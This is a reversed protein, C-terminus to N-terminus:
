GIDVRAPLPREMVVEEGPGLPYSTREGTPVFGLRRYAAAARPNDEHVELRMRAAGQGAAHAALADVLEGLLGQGRAAPQLYVAAVWWVGDEGPFTVATGVGRGERLALLQCSDGGESGRTARYRWEDDAARAADAYAECYALPTDQLAELRLARLVPWDGPVVRRLDARM